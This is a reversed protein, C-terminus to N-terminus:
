TSAKTAVVIEDRNGRLEMWEGIYEESTEDQYNNATDIFNGGAEYYADLLKFSQEKNMSGMGLSTWGDGISMAGLQIPSVQIGARPSLTRYRGLKTPPPPFATWFKSM